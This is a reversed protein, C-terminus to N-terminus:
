RPSLLRGFPSVEGRTAIEFGGHNSAAATAVPKMKQFHFCSPLSQGRHTYRTTEVISVSAEM